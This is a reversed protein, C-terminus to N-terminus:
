AGIARRVAEFVYEQVRKTENKAVDDISEWGIKAMHSAQRSGKSGKKPGQVFVAYSANNGIVSEFKAKDYKSTWKKGLQESVQLTRGSAFKWGFGRQYWGGVKKPQNAATADPYQALKGKVYIGAARIGAHVKRMQKLDKLKRTLEDLGKIEMTVGTDPM